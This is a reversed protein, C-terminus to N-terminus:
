ISDMRYIEREKAINMTKPTNHIDNSFTIANQEVSNSYNQNTFM